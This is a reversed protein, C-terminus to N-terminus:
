LGKELRRLSFMEQDLPQNFKINYFNLETKHVMRRNKKTTMTQKTAVWIGDIQEIKPSDMYKIRGGESVWLVARVVMYNDQRVFLVSKSYGTEDIEEATKPIAEIVWTKAGRVEKENLIRFDYADLNKSTMDSYNFDSGMFSGSKDSSAIRKSKGLAPLYLWQDDDKSYDDYDYTLFGTDKVDAPAMFFMIRQKDEGKDKTYNRIKRARKNGRKDILTMVMDSVGNDGDDRDDVREMIQRATLNAAQLPLLTIMLVAFFWLYKM